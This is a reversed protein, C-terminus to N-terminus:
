SQRRAKLLVFKSNAAIQECNGFIRKLKIHYKLHRNGIVWLEGGAKLVKQSDQFMQWAIHDGIASEQHFPPNCLILDAISNETKELCNSTIFEAKHTKPFASILNEKASAIAMHSEDVFIVKAQPHKEAALIGLIGNGCGLDIINQANPITPLHEIFLRTGIDLKERSFVNAHNLLKHDTNELAYITPYPSNGTWQQKDIETFILRSKKQALSTKTPGIISEFLKLTNKHINKVMGASIIKTDDSICTRLKYLQDELLALSKPIKILVLNFQHDPQQMSSLLTINSENINNLNCNNVCAKQSLFSDSISTPKYASLTVSLAGFSDNLILIKNDSALKHEHVYQLMYEDASDWARLPQQKNKRQSPLPYRQLKINNFPTSLINNEATM